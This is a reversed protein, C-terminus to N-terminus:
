HAPAKLYKYAEVSAYIFPSNGKPDNSVILETQYYNYSGDRGFGLGAVLCQDNMSVRGDQHLTIFENLLGRYSKIATEGYSASLYGKNVAKLLFYSFMASASSERYNAIDNPRDTIQWWTATAADQYRLIDPAFENVIDILSKRLDTETAPIFDLVDVLAMAYWGMGRSWYQPARGTQKDAWDASKSEDWAHYYLGTDPNRLHERAIEFERVAEVFSHYQEDGTEYNAAYQALFPIGMYVGDLWLQNPYTSRHWFAGQTTRPHIKLRGRLYDVAKRYKEQGTRQELLIVMQGPKILDISFLDAEYGSISGDAQIYSGTVKELADKYKENPSVSDIEQLAHIQMGVVDYEFKPPRKRYEDWGGFYYNLTKREIESNALRKAWNLADDAQLNIKAQKSLSSEFRIRPSKTLRQVQEDLYAQFEARTHINKTLESKSNFFYYDLEGGNASIVSIYASENETQQKRDGRHYIIAEGFNNKVDEDQEHWSAVYTYASGTINTDGEIVVTESSKKLAIAFSPFKKDTKFTLQVFASGNNATAHAVVDYSANNIVWNSYTAKYGSFLDGHNTVIVKESEVTPAPEFTKGNWFGLGGSTIKKNILINKAESELQQDQWEGKVISVDAQKNDSSNSKDTVTFNKIQAPSFDALFFIGDQTGDGDKDILNLSLPATESRVSLQAIRKDGPALGLDYFSFYIPEKKLAFNNANTIEATALSEAVSKPEADAMQKGCSTFLVSLLGAVIALKRQRQHSLFTM